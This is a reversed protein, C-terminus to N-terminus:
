SFLAIVAVYCAFSDKIIDCKIFFFVITIPYPTLVYLLFFSKIGYFYSKSCTINTKPLEQAGFLVSTNYMEQFNMM